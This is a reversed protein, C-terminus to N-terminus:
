KLALPIFSQYVWAAPACASPPTVCSGSGLGEVHYAYAQGAALGPDTWSLASTIGLEEWGSTCGSTSRSVRYANAGSVASWQVTALSASRRASVQPASGLSCFGLPGALNATTALVAHAMQAAFAFNLTEVVDGATHYNPNSDAGSCGGPQGQDTDNEIVLVAGLGADWFSAHDSGREPQSIVLDHSLGIGNAQITDALCQGVAQSAPLDGTHVEFCRDYDSDYSIMDLNIDGLITLGAPPHQVFYASGVMGQEEGTFWILLITREFQYSRLLRAAELLTAAGSANDDAGPASSWPNGNAFSDLHASLVVAQQPLTSGPLEVILNSATVGVVPFAQEYVQGQPYWQRVQERVFAYAPSYKAPDSSFLAPTYRTTLRTLTGGASIELSGSLRRVWDVWSEESVQALLDATVTNAGCSTAFAASSAASRTGSPAASRAETSVPPHANAQLPIVLAALLILLILIIFTKM